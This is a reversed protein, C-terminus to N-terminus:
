KLVSEMKEESFGVIVQDGAIIIPRRILRPETAMEEILQEDSLGTLQEKRERYVVGRKNLIEDVSIKSTLENLEEVTYHDKM